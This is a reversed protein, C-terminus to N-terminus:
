ISVYQKLNAILVNELNNKDWYPIRILPIQNEICYKTKIADHYQTTKLNEAAREDSIGGFNVPRYHQEGRQSGECAIHRCVAQASSEAEEDWQRPSGCGTGSRRHQM